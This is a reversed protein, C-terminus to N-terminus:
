LFAPFWYYFVTVTRGLIVVNSIIATFNKTFLVNFAYKYGLISDGFTKEAGLIDSISKGM